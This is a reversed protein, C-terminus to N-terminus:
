RQRRRAVRALHYAFNPWALFGVAVTLGALRVYRFSYGQVLAAIFGALVFSWRIVRATRGLEYDLEYKRRIAWFVFWITIANQILFLPYSLGDM